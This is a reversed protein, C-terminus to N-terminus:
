PRVVFEVIGFREPDHFSRRTPSWALAQSTNQLTELEKKLNAQEGAPAAKLKKQLEEIHAVRSPGGPREIRYLGVRWRDGEHPATNTGSGALSAWPIAIEVTWGAASKGVATRLGKIDWHAAISADTSQDPQHPILLDVVINHPSVELEPYNHGDGDPDLFIEVVEENWLHQDRQMLTGWPEPDVCAFAVYLNTDDWALTAQTDLADPNDHRRIDIFRGVRPLAAWTFEDLKGDVRIEDQARAARYLPPKYDQARADHALAAGLILALLTTSIAQMNM